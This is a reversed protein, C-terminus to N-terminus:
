ASVDHSDGSPRRWSALAQSILNTPPTVVRAEHRRTRGASMRPRTDPPTPVNKHTEGRRAMRINQPTVRYLRAFYVDSMGATRIRTVQEPTLV